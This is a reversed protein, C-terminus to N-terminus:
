VSIGMSVIGGPAATSGGSGLANLLLDRCCRARERCQIFWSSADCPLALPMGIVGNEKATRVSKILEEVEIESDLDSLDESVDDRMENVLRQQAAVAMNGVKKGTSPAGPALAAVADGALKKKELREKERKKTERQVPEGFNPDNARKYPVSKRCPFTTVL